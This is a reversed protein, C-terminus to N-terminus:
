IKYRSVDILSSAPSDLRFLLHECLKRQHVTQDGALFYLHRARAVEQTIWARTWYVNQWLKDAADLMPLDFLRRAYLQSSQSARPCDNSWDYTQFLTCLTVDKGFWSIVWRANAYIDGMQQVQHNNELTNGQDICLADIWLARTASSFSFGSSSRRDMGANSKRVCPRSAIDLFDWLNRRIACPRGNLLITRTDDEDGWVYSLCTYAASTTEHRIKCEILRDGSEDHSPLVEVLRLSPPQLDLPTHQFTSEGDRAEGHDPM